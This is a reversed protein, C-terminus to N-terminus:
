FESSSTRGENLSLYETISMGSAVRLKGAYYDEMRNSCDQGRLFPSRGKALFSSKANSFRGCFFPIGRRPSSSYPRTKEVSRVMEWM